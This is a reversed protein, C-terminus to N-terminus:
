IYPCFTLDTMCCAEGVGMTLLTSVSPATSGPCPVSDGLGTLIDPLCPLLERVGMLLVAPAPHGLWVGLVPYGNQDGRVVQIPQLADSKEGDGFSSCRRTLQTFYTNEPCPTWIAGSFFVRNIPNLIACHCCVEM